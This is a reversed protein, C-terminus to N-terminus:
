EESETSEKLYFDHRGMPEATRLLKKWLLKVIRGREVVVKVEANMGYALSYVQQGDSVQPDLISVKIPYVAGEVANGAVPAAAIEEVTGEFVKYEMSPFANVYLRALQGIEIKPLDTEKVM